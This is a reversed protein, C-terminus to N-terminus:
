GISQGDKGEAGERCEGLNWVDVDVTTPFDTFRLLELVPQLAYRVGNGNWCEM